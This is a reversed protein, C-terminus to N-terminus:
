RPTIFESSYRSSPQARYESPTDDGTIDRYTKALPSDTQVRGIERLIRHLNKVAQEQQGNEALARAMVALNGASDMPRTMRMLKGLANLAREDAIAALAEVAAARGIGSYYFFRVGAEVRTELVAEVLAPVAAAYRTEGIARAAHFQTAADAKQLFWPITQPLAPQHRSRQIVWVVLRTERLDGPAFETEAEDEDEDEDEPRPFDRRALQLIEPFGAQSRLKGLMWLGERRLAARDENVCLSAAHQEIGRRVKDGSREAQRALAMSAMRRVEANADRQLQQLTSNTEDHPFQGLARAVAKRVTHDADDARRILWATNKTPALAAAAEVAARRVIASGSDGQELVSDLLQDASETKTGQASLLRLAALREVPEGTTLASRLVDDVPPMMSHLRYLRLIQARLDPQKEKDLRENLRSDPVAKPSRTELVQLAALRVDPNPDNFPLRDTGGMEAAAVAFCAAIRVEADPDNLAGIIWPLTPKHKLKGLAHLCASRVAPADDSVGAHLAEFAASGPESSRALEMAARVREPASESNLVRVLETVLREPMEARRDAFAASIGACLSLVVVFPLARRGRISPASSLSHHNVAVSEVTM